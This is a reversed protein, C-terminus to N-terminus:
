AKSVTYNGSGTHDHTGGAACTGLGSGGAFCLDECKKCWRWDSQGKAGPSNLTYDGSGSHDHMGGAACTGLTSGGAFCLAECKGCWRWNSQGAADPSNVILVYNGSGSHDHMGGAACSGLKAGGAFCLAECKRCWRWNDQTQVIALKIHASAPPLMPCPGPGVAYVEPNWMATVQQEADSYSTGTVNV